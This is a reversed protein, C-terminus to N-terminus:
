FVPNLHAPYHILLSNVNVEKKLFCMNFKLWIYMDLNSFLNSLENRGVCAATRFYLSYEDLLAMMQEIFFIFMWRARIKVPLPWICLPHSATSDVTGSASLPQLHIIFHLIQVQPYKLSIAQFLLLFLNSFILTAFCFSCFATENTWENLLDSECFLDGFYVSESENGMAQQLKTRKEGGPDHFAHVEPKSETHSFGEM